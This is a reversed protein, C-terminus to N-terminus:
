SCVLEERTINQWRIRSLAQGVPDVLEGRPFEMSQSFLGLNTKRTFKGDKEVFFSSGAKLRVEKCFRLFVSKERVTKAMERGQHRTKAGTLQQVRQPPPEFEQLRELSRLPGYYAEVENLIRDATQTEKTCSSKKRENLFKVTTGAYNYGIYDRFAAVVCGTIVGGVDKEFALASFVMSCLTGADVSCYGLIKHIIYVVDRPSIKKLIEGDLEFKMEPAKKRRHSAEIILDAAAMHLRYDDSNLWRTWCARISGWCKQVMRSLVMEFIALRGQEDNGYDRNIVWTEWFAIVLDGKGEGAVRSLVGDIKQVIGVCDSSVETLRMLVTQFWREGSQKKAKLSLVVALEYQVGPARRESLKVLAEKCEEACQLLRGYGKVLSAAIQIKRRRRLRRYYGLTRELYDNQEGSYDMNGLSIIAAGVLDQSDNALLDECLTYAEAFDGKSLGRLVCPIFGTIPGKKEAVLQQYIMKGTEAQAGSLNELADYVEIGALDNRILKEITRLTDVLSVVEVRLRPLAEVFAHLLNWFDKGKACLEGIRKVVDKGYKNHVVEIASAELGDCTISCGRLYIARVAAWLKDDDNWARLLVRKALYECVAYQRIRKNKFTAKGSKIRVLGANVAAEIVDESTQVSFPKGVHHTRCSMKAMKLLLEHCKKHKQEVDSWARELDMTAEWLPMALSLEPCDGVLDVGCRIVLNNVRWFDCM